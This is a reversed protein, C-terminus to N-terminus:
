GSQVSPVLAANSHWISGLSLAEAHRLHEIPDEKGDDKGEWSEQNPIPVSMAIDARM